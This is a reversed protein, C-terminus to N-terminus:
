RVGEPAPHAAFYHPEQLDALLGPGTPTWDLAERTLANDAPNDLAVLTGLFGFHAVADDATLATTPLELRRAIADAIDAFPIGLDAVGHLRSSGPASELALRFLRAADRTHVAPWRNRGDDVYASVGTDRAVDILRVAFGHRDLESHVIPALRVVSTRVGREALAVAANESDIRPGGEGTDRETAARGGPLGAFLLTGSTIVLPKGSNELGSGLARVAALDVAAAAASDSFDHHYALHTVGDADLAAQRLVAPDDITGRRVEAGAAGVAAASTDSRALAVVSHGNDLLEAVVASGIHGSGGTVFVHM